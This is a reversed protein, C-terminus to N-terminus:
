HGHEHPPAPSGDLLAQAAPNPLVPEPNARLYAEPDKSVILKGWMVQYHGPYTCCYEYAGETEPAKIPLVEQEGPLLLKTAAMVEPIKPVYVRGESDIDEPKMLAAAAGLKDRSDPKSIVLNHPMFDGNEFIIEFAKGAEVVLRPTDYRMQERVTRVVFSSVHLTALKRRLVAGEDAPLYSALDMALQVTENFDRSTRKDAPVASSWKALANATRGAEDRPWSQRPLARLGRSAAPVETGQNILGGLLSFVREPEHKMSVLAEIAARLVPGREMLDIRALDATPGRSASAILLLAVVRDYAKARLDPDTLRPIGNLVGSLAQETKIAENWVTDFGQDALVLGAWASERIEAVPSSTLDSVQTRVVKLDEPRQLPLLRSLTAAHKLNQQSGNASGPSEVAHRGRRSTPFNQSDPTTLEGQIEHLLTAVMNAGRADSLRNLAGNRDSDSIDHRVLIAQLVIQSQPLTLLQSSSLTQLLLQCGIRFEPAEWRAAVSSGSELAKRWWPELQRLTEQITYDLYYDTSHNLAKLPIDVADASRFFSAARVAELRVRANEDDVLASFTQEPDPIRDRWYCLVRAAAARARPEPSTLLRKLLGDDVVNNWAKTWLAELLHHQLAPDNGDLGAVWKDLGAMVDKNDRKALEIKAWERVQNEPAKLLDLLAPIPQGEIRPARALERGEYTMRYIRGHSHDRNPDRLHHQMHGIIPNQWDCFYIAGDPGVNVAVPRFNPDSSSVLPELTEGKLGAGDESIRVRYIGQFGIVNCNLFNGQFEEPFHRSTLIATGPCPRAPRPWFEKMAKHKAPYDIHGSFAPAFYSNNGTGDTIIDNGWYDFVRGHPNAFDYSVYTEFKGTIPEFRYIAADNNRVPGQATEVQTRHFVGDSLYVAGGPEYCLSNATHHSDASSLGMLVREKWDAKGDGNGDRVFWLDPAQVVLVGDKYFQFGTPSNLDDIFHTCKDAKGDGDTDELVVLSDGTKSDPTREPYNPWVAVWLRGRTDWAMQVPKALEPFREESAFLNVKMHSHAKMKSIAEEGRLFPFSNDAEPGPHNSKVRSVAPLNSDDVAFSKGAATAWVKKDRNATMVERQSMEEQMIKFNSVYPAAPNRDNIFGGQNPQYALASRGGYVNNGDVTRYRSHWEENKENVAQRLAEMAALEEPNKTPATDGFLQSYIASALARDGAESLHLGDITLFEHKAAAQEYLERSPGFLDVFTVGNAGAVEEMAEAYQRLNANISGPNPLEPKHKEAAIPSFLVVRPHGNSSYSAALTEKLFKQLETKFKPLGETGRFSENFGFFAFIADAQTKKLWDDASGFDAPRHRTAVEDGAIALNRFVLHHEPYKAHIFTELWGSHQFRDALANGILAVHENSKLELLRANKKAPQEPRQGKKFGEFGYMSPKYEGVLSVGAKAPVELGAGKFVANVILRRLGENELDTAAGMTTCFIWNTKGAENQRSRTWVVPQMPDNKPGEVPPSDPEMGSLVQGRVLIKVDSPPSAAYVDSNGFIDTIGRLLSDDKASPEIVGRTAEKKHAGHHAVWTEGLVQKGFGGPWSKSKWGFKAYPGASDSPYDFAHTSTRLAIIPKGALYADVFHKMQEDPWQRFRLLMVIVDASDLVEAGPLNTKINPNITGNEPNVAFLVTCNFGHRDALIRALQPLSEESRYEEDGSLLVVHKGLGPGNTGQYVAYDRAVVRPSLLLACSLVLLVPPTRLSMSSLIAAPANTQVPPFRSRSPNGLMGLTLRSFDLSEGNWM